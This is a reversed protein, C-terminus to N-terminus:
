TSLGFLLVQMYAKLTSQKASPFWNNHEEQPFVVEVMGFKPIAAAQLDKFPQLRTTKALYVKAHGNFNDTIHDCKPM